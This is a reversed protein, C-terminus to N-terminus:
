WDSSLLKMLRSKKNLLAIEFIIQKIHALARLSTCLLPITCNTHSTGQSRNIRHQIPVSWVSARMLAFCTLLPYQSLVSPCNGALPRDNAGINKQILYSSFSIFLNLLRVFGSMHNMASSITAKTAPHPPPFELEVGTGLKEFEALAM